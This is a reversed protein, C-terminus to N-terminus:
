SIDKEFEVLNSGEQVFDGLTCHLAKVVGDAPARIKHEMKMAELSILPDGKKVIQDPEVLIAIVLGPMPSDLHTEMEFPNLTAIKPDTLFLSYHDGQYFIHLTNEKEIITASYSQNNISVSLQLADEWIIETEFLLGNIATQNNQITITYADKQNWLPFSTTRNNTNIRWDDRIFWPSYLDTSAQALQHGFTLRCRQHHLAALIIVEQTIATPPSLLQPHAEIFQTNIEGDIFAKEQCIRKLLSINTEVGLIHTECIAEKLQAIADPRSSAHIILKALMSDYYPSITDNEQIGTDIRLHSHTEPFHLYSLKGTSPTFLTNPNEACIRAEIAHGSLTIQKQTFPLPEGAAVRIQWEVLDVGTIMETIPHEVQLRTNMEMFYFHGKEDLLFEITGAGLYDITNIIQIATTQMAERIKSNLYPAPAEEIIKQHHRQISCDRDYLHLKNGHADAFIQMEIHRAPSLYKELFLHDNGFNTKSEQKASIIAEKLQSPNMVLRMGKGGGGAVAKLLVPYGIKEAALQFAQISQDKGLYGPTTPIGAKEMILKAQDKNGMTAIVSPSPGIFTIGADGCEQAFYTNESLFGYGPHIAEAKNALAVKILQTTNLYSQQAPAPGLEFAEDALKVHAAQADVTSFVAITKIGLQKATRIIRCAIEGRNAILIKSFM